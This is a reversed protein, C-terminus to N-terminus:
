NAKQWGMVKRKNVIFSELNDAVEQLTAGSNKLETSQWGDDFLCASKGPWFISKTEDWTLGFWRRLSNEEINGWSLEDKLRVGNYEEPWEWAEPWLVPCEGALCGVTGCAATKDIICGLVATERYNFYQLNFEKHGGPCGARAHALLKELREIHEETM